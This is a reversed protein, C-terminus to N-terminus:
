RRKGLYFAGDSYIQDVQNARFHTYLASEVFPIRVGQRAAVFQLIRTRNEDSNFLVPDLERVYDNFGDNIGWHNDNESLYGWQNAQSLMVLLAKITAQSFVPEYFGSRAIERVKFNKPLNPWSQIFSFLRQIERIWIKGVLKFLLRCVVKSLNQFCSIQM